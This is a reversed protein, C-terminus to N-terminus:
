SKPAGKQIVMKREINWNEGGGGLQRPTASWKKYVIWVIRAM